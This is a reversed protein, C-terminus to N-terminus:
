DQFLDWHGKGLSEGLRVKRPNFGFNETSNSGFGVFLFSESDTGDM